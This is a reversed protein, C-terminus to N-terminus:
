TGYPNRPMGRRELIQRAREIAAMRQFVAPTEKDLHAARCVDAHEDKRYSSKM